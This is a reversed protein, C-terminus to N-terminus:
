KTLMSVSRSRLMAVDRACEQAISSSTLSIQFCSRVIITFVFYVVGSVGTTCMSLAYVGLGAEPCPTLLFLFMCVLGGVMTGVLVWDLIGLTQLTSADM